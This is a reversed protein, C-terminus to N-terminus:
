VLPVPVHKVAPPSARATGDYDNVNSSDTMQFYTVAPAPICALPAAATLAALGPQLHAGKGVPTGVM